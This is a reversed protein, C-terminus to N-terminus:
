APTLYPCRPTSEAFVAFGKGQRNIQWLRFCLAEFYRTLLAVEACVTRYELVDLWGVGLDDDQIVRYVEYGVGGWEVLGLNPIWILFFLFFFGVRPPWSLVFYSVYGRKDERFKTM